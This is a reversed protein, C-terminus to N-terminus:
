PTDKGPQDIPLRWVWVEHRTGARNQRLVAGPGEAAAAPALALAAWRGDPSLEPAYFAHHTPALARRLDVPSSRMPQPEACEGDTMRLSLRATARFVGDATISPEFDRWRRGAAQTGGDPDPMCTRTGLSTVADGVGTFCHDVADLRPGGNADKALAAVAWPAPAGDPADGVAAVLTRHVLRDPQALAEKWAVDGLTRVPARSGPRCDVSLVRVRAIAHDFTAAREGPVGTMTDLTLTLRGSGTTWGQMRVIGHATAGLAIDHVSRMALDAIRLAGPRSSNPSGVTTRLWAVRSGDPAVTFEPLTSPRDEIVSWEPARNWSADEPPARWVDLRWAITPEYPLPRRIPWRPWTRELGAVPWTDARPAASPGNANRAFHAIGVVAMVAATLAWPWARLWQGLATRGPRRARRADLAAGCEPCADGPGLRALDHNCRGCYTRGPVQPRAAIRRAIWALWLAGALGAVLAADMGHAHWLAGHGRDVPYGVLLHDGDGTWAVQIPRAHDAPLPAVPIRVEPSPADPRAM